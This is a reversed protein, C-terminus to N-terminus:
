TDADIPLSKTNLIAFVSAYCSVESMVLWLLPCGFLLALQFGFVENFTPIVNTVIWMITAGKDIMIYNLLNFTMMFM